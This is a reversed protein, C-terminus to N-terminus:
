EHKLKMIKRCKGSNSISKKSKTLTHLFNRLESHVRVRLYIMLIKSGIGSCLCPLFDTHPVHQEVNTAISSLCRQKHIFVPFLSLFQTEVKSLYAVVSDSPVSLKGFEGSCIAKLHMFALTPDDLSGSKCLCDCCSCVHGSKIKHVLYGAIYVLANAAANRTAPLLICSDHPVCQVVSMVTETTVSNSNGNDNNININSNGSLAQLSLMLNDDSLAECNGGPAASLLKNAVCQRMASRFHNASPNDRFGGKQRISSFFSELCDQNLRRPLM